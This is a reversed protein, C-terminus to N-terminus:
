LIYFYDDNIKSLFKSEDPFWIEILIAKIFYKVYIKMVIHDDTLGKRCATEDQRFITNIKAIM